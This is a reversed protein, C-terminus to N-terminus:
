DSENIYRRMPKVTQQKKAAAAIYFYAISGPTTLVSKKIGEIPRNGPFLVPFLVPFLFQYIPGAIGPYGVL